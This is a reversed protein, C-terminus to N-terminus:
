LLEGPRRLKQVARGGSRGQVSRRVQARGQWHRVPRLGSSRHGRPSSGYIGKVFQGVLVEETESDAQVPILADQKTAVTSSLAAVSDASAKTDLQSQLAADAAAVTSSSAKTNVLDTLLALDTDVAAQDAKASLGAAVTQFYNPNNDIAQALLESSNLDAPALGVVTEQISQYKRKLPNWV